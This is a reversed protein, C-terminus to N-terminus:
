GRKSHSIIYHAPLFERNEEEEEAQMSCSVLLYFLM